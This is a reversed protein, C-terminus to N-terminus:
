AQPKLLQKSRLLRHYNVAFRHAEDRIAQVLQRAPNDNKLAIKQSKAQTYIEELRKAISIVPINLKHSKLVSAAVNLQGRGGDIIVLDPKPWANKFRRGLVEDLMQYDDPSEKFKIRFRRYQSKDPSGDTFVVMSGTALLGGLNSIDYCEIRKPPKKLNLVKTLQEVKAHILDDVLTPRELFERPDHYSTRLLQLKELQKKIINAEEFREDQAAKKMQSNLNHILKGFNGSLLKKIKGVTEQYKSNKHNQAWPYPCLGLHVYLCPKKPKQHHCYPFIRRVQRLIESTTKASPFPGKLFIGQTETEKRTTSILPVKGKSIKIYIPIKDDRAKINFFPKRTRILQAELLLAEFESFVKIHKISAINKVLLNTKPGLNKSAFYSSVRSKISVSKGVYLIRRNKDYFEYIGPSNPLTAIQSRLSEM